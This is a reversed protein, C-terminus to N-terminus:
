VKIKVVIKHLDGDSIMPLHADEPFFIAVQGPLVPVWADPEDTYFGLDKDADYPGAEDRCMALPKWGMEDTGSLVVQIDIYDRHIELQGEERTRGKDRMAIAFVEDGAIDHRGDALGALDTGELFDIAKVFREGFCRYRGVQVLTDLIM